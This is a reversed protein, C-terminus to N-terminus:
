AGAGVVAPLLAVTIEARVAAIRERTRRAHADRLAPDVRAEPHADLRSREAVMPAVEAAWERHLEGCRSLATWANLPLRRVRGRNAQEIVVGAARLAARHVLEFSARPDEERLQEAEVLLSECRELVVLARDLRELDERVRRQAVASAEAGPESPSSIPARSARATARPARGSTRSRPAASAAPEPAGTPPASTRSTTSITM